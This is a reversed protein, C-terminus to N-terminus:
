CRALRAESARNIISGARWTEPVITKDAWGTWGITKLTILHSGYLAWVTGLWTCCAQAVQFPKGASDTGPQDNNKREREQFGGIAGIMPLNRKRLKGFFVLM